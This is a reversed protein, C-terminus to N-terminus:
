PIPAVPFASAGPRLVFDYELFCFPPEADPFRTPDREDSHRFDGVLAPKAGFVVDRALAEQDDPFVQTILTRYGEASVVFHIHAPRFPHRRQAALLRGVPGDTPVPYGAPKVTRFAYRGDAGTRFRGRLNMDEQEPDQNEYLGVPSAQWVDLVAGEIATGDVGRVDGEVFLPTGPTGTRAITEGMACEPSRARYFPGLLASMTEGRGGSNNILDVMTSLGLVDAALVVENNTAHTQQGLAALFRLGHEYEDESPRVERLFAHLHRVLSAMVERLRPDTTGEMAQLVAPTVSDENEVLGSAQSQDFSAQGSM